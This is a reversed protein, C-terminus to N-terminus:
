SVSLDSPPKPLVVVGRLLLYGIGEPKYYTKYYVTNIGSVYIAKACEICPSLITYLTTGHLSYKCHLIANMEAHIENAKSWERHYNPDPSLDCCHLEGSAVGNYGISILRNDSSVIAAATQKKWCTSRRAFVECVDFWTEHWTPRSM